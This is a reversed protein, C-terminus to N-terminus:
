SIYNVDTEISFVFKFLHDVIDGVTAVGFVISQNEPEPFTTTIPYKEL